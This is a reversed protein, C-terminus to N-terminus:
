SAAGLEVLTLDLIRALELCTDLAGLGRETRSVTSPDTDAKLALEIQTLGVERRRKAIAEGWQRLVEATTPATM